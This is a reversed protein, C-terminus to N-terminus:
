GRRIRSRLSKARYVLRGVPGAVLAAIVLLGANPGLHVVVWSYGILAALLALLVSKLTSSLKFM